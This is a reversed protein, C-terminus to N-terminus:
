PGDEWSNRAAILEDMESRHNKWDHIGKSRFKDDLKAEITEWVAREYTREKPPADMPQVRRLAEDRGLNALCWAIILDDHGRKKATTAKGADDYVFKPLQEILAKTRIAPGYKELYEPTNVQKFRERAADILNNRSLQTSKWGWDLKFHGWDGPKRDAWLNTYRLQNGLVELLVDGHKGNEVVAFCGRPSRGRYMYGLAAVKEAFEQPIMSSSVFSAVEQLTQAELVIAASSDGDKAASGSATDVGMVYIAQPDPPFWM